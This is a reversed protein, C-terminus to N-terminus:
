NGIKEQIPWTSYASPSTRWQADVTRRLDQADSTSDVTQFYTHALYAGSVKEGRIRIVGALIRQPIRM